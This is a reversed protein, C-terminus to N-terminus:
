HSGWVGTGVPPPPPLSPPATSDDGGVLGDVMGKAAADDFSNWVAASPRATTEWEKSVGAPVSTAPMGDRWQVSPMHGAPPAPPQQAPPAPLPQKDQLSMDSMQWVLTDLYQQHQQHDQASLGATAVSSDVAPQTYSQHQPQQVTTAHTRVHSELPATTQTPLSAQPNSYGGYSVVGASQAAAGAQQQLYSYAGGAPQGLGFGATAYATASNPNTPYSSAQQAYAQAGYGPPAGYAATSAQPPYGQLQSAYSPPQAAGATAAATQYAQQGAAYAQGASYAQASGAYAQQSSIYPQQAGYGVYSQSQPPPYGAASAQQAAAAAVAAAYNSAAGQYAYGQLDRLLPPAAGAAGSPLGPADLGDRGLSPGLPVGGGYLASQVAQNGYLQQGQASGYVPMSQAPAGYLQQTQPLPQQPPLLAQSHAMSHHALSPVPPPPLGLAQPPYRTQLPPLPEPVGPHLAGKPPPPAGKGGLRADNIGPVPGRQDIRSRREEKRKAVEQEAESDDVVMDGSKTWEAKLHWVHGRTDPLQVLGQTTARLAEEADAKTLFKVFGFCRPKRSSKDVVLHVRKVRCFKSFEREIDGESAEWPFYAILLTQGGRVPFGVDAAMEKPPYHHVALTDVVDKSSAKGGKGGAPGGLNGKTPLGKGGKMGDPVGFNDYDQFGDGKKGRRRGKGGKGYDAM